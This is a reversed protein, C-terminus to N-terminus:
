LSIEEAIRGAVLDLEPSRRPAEPLDRFINDGALWRQEADPVELVRSLAASLEYGASPLRVARLAGLMAVHASGAYALHLSSIPIQVQRNRDEFEDICAELLLSTTQRCVMPRDAYVSCLNDLLLPCPLKRGVRDSPALGLLPRCREQVLQASLSGGARRRVAEALRFAEPAILGVYSHCCYACGNRCVIAAKPPRAAVSKEMLGQIMGVAESARRENGREKLKAKLILAVGLLMERPPQAPLGSAFAARGLKTYDRHASRRQQRTGETM